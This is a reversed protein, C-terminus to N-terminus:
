GSEDSDSREPEEANGVQAHVPAAKKNTNRVSGDQEAVEVHSASAKDFFIAFLCYSYILM